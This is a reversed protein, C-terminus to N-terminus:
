NVPSIPNHFELKISRYIWSAMLQGLWLDHCAAAGSPYHTTVVTALSISILTVSCYWGRERM